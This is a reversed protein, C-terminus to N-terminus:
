QPYHKQYSTSIESQGGKVKNWKSEGIKKYQFTKGKDMSRYQYPDGGGMAWKDGKGGISKYTGEIPKYVGQNKQPGYTEERVPLDTGTAEVTPFETTGSDKTTKMTVKKPEVLKTEIDKEVAKKKTKQWWKSINATAEGLKTKHEHGTWSGDKRHKVASRHGTTGQITGLNAPSGKMKYGM